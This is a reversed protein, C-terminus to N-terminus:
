RGYFSAELTAIFVNSLAHLVVPAALGGTRERLWGFLLGPFFTGLRWPQLVVLHGLAFLVQTWVFGAGLRAGLVTVSRGPDTRAWATQVFGRYFLEEPLAVVLLQVVVLALARDPLRPAFRPLAAYPALARALGAPLLPLLEAWAVFVAAFVPFVAAAALLAQAAGKAWARWTRPDRAGYWPLGYADWTEGRARLRADPIAVFLLAAVGALNAGLLGTPDALSLLKAAALGAIALVWTRVIERRGTPPPRSIHADESVPEADCANSSADVNEGRTYASRRALM